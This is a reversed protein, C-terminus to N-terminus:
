QIVTLKWMNPASMSSQIQQLTYRLNITVTYSIPTISPQAFDLFLKQLWKAQCVALAMARYEAESSSRSVVTQKKSKWSILSSGFLFVFGSVSRRSDKCAAWDSDRYASLKFNSSASFFIGKAPCGKLYRLVKCAASYHAKTPKSMFQSLRGVAFSLDPRTNALYILRGVLRRYLSVDQMLDTDDARLRTTHDMPTTSPKAALLGTDQLLDLAYKHQCLFIGKDNRIIEM